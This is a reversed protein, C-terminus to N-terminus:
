SALHRPEAHTTVRRPRRRARVLDKAYRNASDRRGSSDHWRMGTLKARLQFDKGRSLTAPAMGRRIVYILGLITSSSLDTGGFLFMYRAMAGTGFGFSGLGMGLVYNVCPHLWHQFVLLPGRRRRAGKVAM